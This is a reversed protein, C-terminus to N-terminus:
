RPMFPGHAVQGRADVLIPRKVSQGDQRIGKFVRAARIGVDEFM